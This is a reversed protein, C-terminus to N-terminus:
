YAPAWQQIFSVEPHCELLEALSAYTVGPISYRRGAPGYVRWSIYVGDAGRALRVVAGGDASYSAQITPREALAVEVALKGQM